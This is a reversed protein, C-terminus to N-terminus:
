YVFLRWMRAPQKRELMENNAPLQTVHIALANLRISLMRFSNMCHSVKYYRGREREVAM